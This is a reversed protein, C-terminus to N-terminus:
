SIFQATPHVSCSLNLQFPFSHLGRGAPAITAPLALVGAGVTSGTALAWRGRTEPKYTYATKNRFHHFRELKHSYLFQM